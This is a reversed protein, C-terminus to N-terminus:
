HIINKSKRNYCTQNTSIVHAKTPFMQVCKIRTNRYQVLGTSVRRRKLTQLVDIRRQRRRISTKYVNFPLRTDVLFTGTIKRLSAEKRIM